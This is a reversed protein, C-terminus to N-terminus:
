TKGTMEKIKEKLEVIDHFCFEQYKGMYQESITNMPIGTGDFYLSQLGYHLRDFLMTSSISVGIQSEYFNDLSSKGEQEYGIGNEILLDLYPPRIGHKEMLMVEFPHFYVKATIDTEQRLEAIAELIPLFKVYMPNDLYSYARIKAIDGSRWLNPTRAWSGSSYIGVDVQPEKKPIQDFVKAEELGWLEISRFKMWGHGLYHKTEEEQFRSCLRFDVKPNYQYRNGRLLVSNSSVISPHHGRLLHSALFTSLYTYPEYSFFLVQPKDPHQFLAQQILYHAFQRKWLWHVRSPAFLGTFAAWLLRWAIRHVAWLKRFGLQNFYVPPFASQGNYPLIAEDPIGKLLHKQLFYKRRAVGEPSLVNDFYLASFRSGSRLRFPLTWLSLLISLFLKFQYKIPYPKASTKGGLRIAASKWAASFYQKDFPTTRLITRIFQM